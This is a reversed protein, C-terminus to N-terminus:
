RRGVEEPEMEEEKMAPDTMRPPKPPSTRQAPSKVSWRRSLEALQEQAQEKALGYREQIIGALKELNGQSQDLEDDTLEGWRARIEGRIQKWNGALIEKNM